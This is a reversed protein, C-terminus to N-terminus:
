DSTLIRRAEDAIRARMDQATFYLTNSAPTGHTWQTEGNRNFAWMWQKGRGKGYEGIGSIGQPRTGLYPESGNYYVGAGFEVFCVDEGNANVAYGGEIERATVKINAYDWSGSPAIDMPANNYIAQATVAGFESLAKPLEVELRKLKTVYRDLVAIAREISERSLADVTIKMHKIQRTRLIWKRFPM